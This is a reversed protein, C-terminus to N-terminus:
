CRNVFAARKRLPMGAFEVIRADVQQAFVRSRARARVSVGTQGPLCTQQRDRGLGVDEEVLSVVFVFFCLFDKHFSMYHVKKSPFQLAESNECKSSCVALAADKCNSVEHRSCVGSEALLFSVPSSEVVM